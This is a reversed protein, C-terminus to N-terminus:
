EDILLDISIPTSNKNAYQQNLLDNFWAKNATAIDTFLKEFDIKPTSMYFVERTLM